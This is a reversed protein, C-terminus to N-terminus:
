DYLFKNFQMAVAKTCDYDYIVIYDIVWKSRWQKENGNIPNGDYRADVEQISFLISVVHVHVNFM